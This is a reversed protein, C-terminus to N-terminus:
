FDTKTFKLFKYKYDASFFDKGTVVKLADAVDFKDLTKNNVLLKLEQYFTKNIEKIIGKKFVFCRDSPDSPLDKTLAKYSMYNEYDAV